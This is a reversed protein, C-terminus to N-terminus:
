PIINMFESPIPLSHIFINRFLIENLPLHYADLSVKINITQVFKLILLNSELGARVTFLLLISLSRNMQTKLFISRYDLGKLLIWVMDTSQNIKWRILWYSHNTFGYSHCRDFSSHYSMKEQLPMIFKGNETTFGPMCKLM